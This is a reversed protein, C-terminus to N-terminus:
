SKSILIFLFCIWVIVMRPSTYQSGLRITLSVFMFVEQISHFKGNSSLTMMRPSETSYFDLSTDITTTTTRMSKPRKHRSTIREMEMASTTTTTPSLSIIQVSQSTRGLLNAAVCSYEGQYDSRLDDIIMELIIYKDIHYIQYNWEVKQNDKLWFVKEFPNM